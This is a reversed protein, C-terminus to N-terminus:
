LFTNQQQEAIFFNGCNHKELKGVFDIQQSISTNM